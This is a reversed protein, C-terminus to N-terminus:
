VRRSETRENAVRHVIRTIHNRARLDCSHIRRPTDAVGAVPAVPAALVDADAVVVVATRAGNGSFVGALAAAAAASTGVGTM